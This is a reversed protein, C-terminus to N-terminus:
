QGKTNNMLTQWTKDTQLDSKTKAAAAQTKADNYKKEPVVIVKETTCGMLIVAVTAYFM